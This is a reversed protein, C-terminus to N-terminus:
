CAEKIEVFQRILKTCGTYKECYSHICTSRQCLALHVGQVGDVLVRVAVVPAEHDVTVVDHATARRRLPPDEVRGVERRDQARGVGDASEHLGHEALEVHDSGERDHGRQLGPGAVVGGEPGAERFDEPSGRPKQLCGCCCCESEM